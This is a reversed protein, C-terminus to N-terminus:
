RYHAQLPRMKWQEFAAELTHHVWSVTAPSPQQGTLSAM